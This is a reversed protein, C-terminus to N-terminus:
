KHIKKPDVGLSVNNKQIKIFNDAFNNPINNARLKRRLGGALNYLQKKGYNLYDDVGWLHKMCDDVKIDKNQNDILFILLQMEQPSSTIKAKLYYFEKSGTLILDFNESLINIDKIEFQKLGKIVFDAKHLEDLQLIEFGENNLRTEEANDNIFNDPTIVILRAQSPNLARMRQIAIDKVKGRGDTTGLLYIVKNFIGNIGKEGITFANDAEKQLIPKLSNKSIIEQAFKDLSFVYHVAESTNIKYPSQLVDADCNIFCEDDLLYIEPSCHEPCLNCDFHKSPIEKFFSKDDLSLYEKQTIKPKLTKQLYKIM